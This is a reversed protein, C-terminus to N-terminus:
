VGLRKAVWERVKEEDFLIRRSGYTIADWGWDKYQTKITYKSLKTIEVCNPDIPIYRKGKVTLVKEDLKEMM